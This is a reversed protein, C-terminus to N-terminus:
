VSLENDALISWGLARWVESVLWEPTQEAPGLQMATDGDIRSKPRKSRRLANSFTEDEDGFVGKLLTSQLREKVQTVFAHNGNGSFSFLSTAQSRDIEQFGGILTMVKDLICILYPAELQVARQATGSDLTSMDQLGQPPFLGLFMESQRSPQTEAFVALSLSSGLHDLFACLCGELIQRHSSKSPNLATLLTAALQALSEYVAHHNQSSSKHSQDPARSKTRATKATQKSEDMEKAQQIILTSMKALITEFLVVVEYIVSGVGSTSNSKTCLKDLGLLTSPYLRQIAVAASQLNVTPSQTSGKKISVSSPVAASSDSILTAATKCLQEIAHQLARAESRKLSIQQRLNFFHRMFAVSGTRVQDACSSLCHLREVDFVGNQFEEVETTRGPDVPGEILNDRPLPMKAPVIRRKSQSNAKTVTENKRKGKKMAIPSAPVDLVTLGNGPLAQNQELEYIRDLLKAQSAESTEYAQKWFVTSDLHQDEQASTRQPSERVHRRLQSFYDTSFYALDTLCPFPFLGELSLGCPKSKLIILALAVQAPPPRRDGNGSRRLFHSACAGALNEAM